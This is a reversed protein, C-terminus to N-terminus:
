SCQDRKRLDLAHSVIGDVNPLVLNAAEGLPIFSDEATYRAFRANTGHETYLTMLAESVSGSRRCEDVILIKDCAATAQMLAQEAIPALWRLDIVRTQIGHVEQLIKAAQMSLYVGNAYTVIALDEGSGRIAIDGAHIETGTGPPEYISSWLGDEKEYLDRTNYLAIPEVFVVVRRQERALRICTRLMQVADAGNSPCALVIGPIDRFVTLSNDNHFHGGFGKQYALGAVRILMPNSYQGASFFSLTAAEGRIQDEANHVYALFQIEAIPIFGNLALGIAMGLISQEDLPTNTVRAAGFKEYLGDTIGYVGGKRGVDEGFVITDEYQLMLDALAFNLLHALTQPKELNAQERTFLVKRQAPTTAPVPPVAAQHPIITAMVAAATTLRPRTIAQEALQTVRSEMEEYHSCIQEPSLIGNAVLIRATHLLPDQAETLEIEESERYTAEMDSGAHGMLRIVRAHLFVPKQKRRAYEIAKVTTRYTDLLDLGDCCYYAIGARYEFNNRIWNPPTPTSIGIGNDECIFVIPMPSNQCSAWAATNMAGLATSHNASADGFSCLIVSDHPMVADKKHLHGAIGIAHAAGVAKPLHSAITSTQPPVLLTNSGLVKHRGGSVPDESSAAFSLLMDFLPDEGPVQKSRQILLAGARYHLFAMDTVRFVKGFVANGEHGASGITYFSENRSRLWRSTLDLHRSMLQSDFLDIIETGTLGVDMPRLHVSAPPFNGSTV